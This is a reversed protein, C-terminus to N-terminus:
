FIGDTAETEERSPWPQSFQLDDTAFGGDILSAAVQVSEIEFLEGPQVNVARERSIPSGDDRFGVVDFQGSPCPIVILALAKLKIM